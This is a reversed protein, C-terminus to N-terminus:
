NQMDTLFVGINFEKILKFVDAVTLPKRAFSNAKFRMTEIIESENDTGSLIVIPVEDFTQNARLKKLISLGNVTPLHLDLFIIIPKNDLVHNEMYSEVDSNSMLANIPNTINCSTLLETFLDIDNIDDEIILIDKQIM